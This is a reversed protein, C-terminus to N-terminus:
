GNTSDEDNSEDTPKARLDQGESIEKKVKVHRSWFPLKQCVSCVLYSDNTEFTIECVPKNNCCRLIQSNM